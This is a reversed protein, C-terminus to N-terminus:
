AAAEKYAKTRKVKAAIAMIAVGTDYDPRRTGKSFRHITAQSLNLERALKTQSWDPHKLIAQIAETTTDTTM